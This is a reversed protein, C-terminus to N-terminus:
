EGYFIGENSVAKRSKEQGGSSTASIVIRNHPLTCFDEAAGFKYSPGYKGGAVTTLSM